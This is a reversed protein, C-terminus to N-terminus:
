LSAFLHFGFVLFKISIALSIKLFEVLFGIRNPSFRRTPQVNGMERDFSLADSHSPIERRAM